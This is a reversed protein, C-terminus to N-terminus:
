AFSGNAMSAQLQRQLAARIDRVIGTANPASTYVNLSGITVSRSGGGSATAGIGAMSSGHWGHWAGWGHTKAWRLAFLDMARWNSPDSPDLGTQRQFEDGLGSVANGGGARGGVHLQFDGFSSGRDGAYRGGLGESRAVAVAINPDIGLAAASSRIYSEHEVKGGSPGGPIPGEWQTGGRSYKGDKNPGFLYNWLSRRQLEEQEEKTTPVPAEGLKQSGQAPGTLGLLALPGLIRGLLALAGSGIGILSLTKVAAGLATVATTVGIIGAALTPNNDIWWRLDDLMPVLYPTLATSIDRGLKTLAQDLLSFSMQRKEAAAIDAPSPAYAKEAKLLERMAVSGREILSITGPDFGMDQLFTTAQARPMKEIAESLKILADQWDLTGDATTKLQIGLARIWPVLTTDGTISMQAFKSILGTITSETAAASGGLAQSAAGWAGLARASIGFRESLRGLQTDAQTLFKLFEASGMGVTFVALFELAGKKLRTFFENARKGSEEIKKGEGEASLRTQRLSEAAKKQGETFASPDLSLSVVLADLLTAM